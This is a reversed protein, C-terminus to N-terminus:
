TPYVGRWSKEAKRSQTDGAPIVWQLAYAPAPGPAQSPRALHRRGPTSHPTSRVLEALPQVIRVAVWGLDPHPFELASFGVLDCAIQQKPCKQRCCHAGLQWILNRVRSWSSFHRRHPDIHVRDIGLHEIDGPIQLQEDGLRAGSTTASNDWM